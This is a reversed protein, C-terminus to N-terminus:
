AQTNPELAAAVVGADVLLALLAALDFSPSLALAAEAAQRITKRDALAQVFAFGAADLTIWGADDDGRHVLLYAVGMDVDITEDVDDRQNVQWIRDVPYPSSLLRCSPHLPLTFEVLRDAPLSALEDANLAPTDASFYAENLAWELRAVDALYPLAATEAQDALFAPFGDGYEFLCPASPPHSLVFRRAMHQFFDGGVLRRIVPFTAELAEILTVRYHNHYIRLRAEAGPAEDVIARAADTMEGSVIGGALNTQLELLSPM